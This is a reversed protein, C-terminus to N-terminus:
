ANRRGWSRFWFEYHSIIKGVDRFNTFRPLSLCKQCLYWIDTGGSPIAYCEADHHTPDDNRAKRDEKPNWQCYM